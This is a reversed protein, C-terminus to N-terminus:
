HKAEESLSNGVQGFDSTEEGEDSAEQAETGEECGFEEAGEAELVEEDCEEAEGDEKEGAASCKVVKGGRGEEDVGEGNEGNKKRVIWCGWGARVRGIFDDAEINVM